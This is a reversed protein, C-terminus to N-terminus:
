NGATKVSKLLGVYDLTINLVEDNYFTDPFVPPDEKKKEEKDEKEKEEDEESDRKSEEREKRLVAENLSITKRDQRAIVRIIDTALDAFESDKSVRAKSLQALQAIMRPSRFANTPAVAASIRDFPLANDLSEEGVERHDLISPLVVDSNVGNVQTSDGNVRYFQQITLKIAGRDQDDGFLRLRPSVPMVNQVTGKGHTTKDGIVIGRGWDKIAGAFIESASASLRNCLVVLPGRYWIKPDEDVHPRIQGDQEKTQVIPGKRVFLGSLEVAEVLAGGGNFRLDVIVADLNPEKAFQQLVKEVDKRASKFDPLGLSAGRFDRYFSPLSIVGIRGSRGDIRDKVDIIEGKVEASKLEITKRKLEYVVAEDKEPTKVQLRVKTGKPGRIYRVVKSLKMEVVDTWDDNARSDVAVIKDGVKLRGDEDAAGGAVVDAVITYGDESRLAAGIGELKLEMSIRFDELTQPSMYQSHPDLTHTLSTLYMELKEFGETQLMTQYITKYRKHLRERAEELETGDIKLTLLDFKIRKRWREKIEADTAAWPMDDADIVIDEDITFDHEIDILEQATAIRQALRSLYLDFAEFAFSADGNRLDDDLSTMKRSLQAVDARTFYLKQPDLAEIFRKMLRRSVDDNIPTHSIHRASVLQSVLQATRGADARSGNRQAVVTSGVFVVLGLTLFIASRGPNKSIM